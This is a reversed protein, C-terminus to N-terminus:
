MGDERKSPKSYRNLVARKEPYDDDDGDDDDDDDDDARHFWSM